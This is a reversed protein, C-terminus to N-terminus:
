ILNLYPCYTPNPRPTGTLDLNILDDNGWCWLNSLIPCNSIVLSTLKNEPVWVYMLHTYDTLTLSTLGSHCCWLKELFSCDQLEVSSLDPNNSCSLERLQTCGSLVLEVVSTRDCNLFQLADCGSLDIVPLSNDNLWLEKLRTFQTMRPLEPIRTNALSMAVVFSSESKNVEGPVVLITCGYYKKYEPGLKSKDHTKPRWIMNALPGPLTSTFRELLNIESM